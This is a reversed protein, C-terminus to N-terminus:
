VDGRERKGQIALIGDFASSASCCPAWGPWCALLCKHEGRLRGGCTAPLHVNLSRNRSSWALADRTSCILDLTETVGYLCWVDVRLSLDWRCAPLGVQLYREELKMGHMVRRQCKNRRAYTAGNEEILSLCRLRTVPHPKAQSLKSARYLPPLSLLVLVISLLVVAVVPKEPNYDGSQQTYCISRFLRRGLRSALPRPM